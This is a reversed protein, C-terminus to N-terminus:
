PPQRPSRANGPTIEADGESEDSPTFEMKRWFSPTSPPTRQSRHRSFRQLAQRRRQPDDQAFTNFFERCAPCACGTLAQRAERSRTSGGPAREHLRAMANSTSSPRLLRGAGPRQGSREAYLTRPAQARNGGPRQLADAAHRKGTHTTPAPYVHTDPSMSLTHEHLPTRAAQGDVPCWTPSRKQHHLPPHNERADDDDAEKRARAGRSSCGSNATEAMGVGLAQRLEGIQAMLHEVMGELRELRARSEQCGGDCGHEGAAAGQVGNLFTAERTGVREGADM